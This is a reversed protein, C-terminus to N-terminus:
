LNVREEREKMHLAHNPDSVHHQSNSERPMSQICIPDVYHLDSVPNQVCYLKVGKKYWLAVM